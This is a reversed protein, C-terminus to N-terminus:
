ELNMALLGVWKDKSLKYVSSRHKTKSYQPSKGKKSPYDGTNVKNKKWRSVVAETSDLDAADTSQAIYLGTNDWFFYPSPRDTITKYASFYSTRNSRYNSWRLLAAGSSFSLVNPGIEDNKIEFAQMTREFSAKDVDSMSSAVNVGYEVLADLVKKDTVHKSVVKRINEDRVAALVAFRKLADAKRRANVFTRITSNKYDKRAVVVTVGKLVLSKGKSKVFGLTELFTVSDRDGATVQNTIKRTLPHQAPEIFISFQSDDTKILAGNMRGFSDLMQRHVYKDLM